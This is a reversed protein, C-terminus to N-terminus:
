PRTRRVILTATSSPPRMRRRRQTLMTQLRGALASLDNATKKPDHGCLEVASRTKNPITSTLIVRVQPRHRRLWQALAFGNQEGALQADAMVIDIRPGALLVAKADDADGAEIVTMGCARLYEALGFRIIVDAEVILLTLCGKTQKSKTM